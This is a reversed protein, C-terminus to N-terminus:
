NVASASLVLSLYKESKAGKSTLVIPVKAGAIFGAMKAGASYLLSKGLINGTTINPIDGEQNMKKLLAADMTEPVNPNINEVAALISIQQQVREILQDFTNIM